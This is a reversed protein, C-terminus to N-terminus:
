QPETVAFRREMERIAPLGLLDTLGDFDFRPDHLAPTITGQEM